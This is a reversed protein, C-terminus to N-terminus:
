VVESNSEIANGPKSLVTWLMATLSIAFGAGILLAEKFHEGHL